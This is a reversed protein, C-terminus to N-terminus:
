QPFGVLGTSMPLGLMLNMCQLASGSAGKGLNDFRAYVMMREDNGTILIDCVDTNALALPDVSGECNAPLVRVMPQDAYFAEYLAQLKALSMPRQMDEKAIPFGVLMGSYFDCVIPQFVPALSLHCQAVIEPLHKHAQLTAYPRPAHLAPSRDSSEYDAIMAKGGGSYGTLSTIFLPADPRLVYSAVLPAILMVSGGAHCGPVAVRKSQAILSPQQKCLEPLGYVFREDTRHATSADIICGQTDELASVLEKSAQDPLCLFTIDAKKAMEVRASLDKRFTEPLQLLTIDTRNALRSQLRLGTTGQNGDIFVQKM